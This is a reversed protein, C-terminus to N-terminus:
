GSYEDIDVDANVPQVENEDLPQDMELPDENFGLEEVDTFQDGLSTRPISGRSLRSMVTEDVARRAGEISTATLDDDAPLSPRPPDPLFSDDEAEELAMSLRPRPLEHDEEDEKTEGEHM